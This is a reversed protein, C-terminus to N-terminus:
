RGMTGHVGQPKMIRATHLIVPMGDRGRCSDQPKAPRTRSAGPEIQMAHARTRRRQGAGLQDGGAGCAADHNNSRIWPACLMEHPLDGPQPARIRAHREQRVAFRQRVVQEARMRFDGRSAQFRQGPKQRGAFRRRGPGQEHGRGGQQVAQRRTRLEAFPQPKRAPCPLRQVGFRQPRAQLLGGIEAHRQDM